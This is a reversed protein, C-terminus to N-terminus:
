KVRMRVVRSGGREGPGQANYVRLEVIDGAKVTSVAQTFETVTRVRTGDVHTIIDGPGDQAAPQLKEAAPGDQDVATVGLGTNEPTDGSVPAVSIGLKQNLPAAAPARGARGTSSTAVPEESPAAILAVKLNVKVGGKRQVTLTVIEGPKRFAVAQQFQAIYEIMKGDIAVVVDGPRVGAAEAPSNEVSFDQVVAGSVADLKAYEADEPQVTGLRLGIIARNVKGNKILEDMVHQALNSPIAFGYGEYTGTQTAIASNIGIVKGDANVLPGGSNGPNIAADTQIFDQIGYNTEGNRLGNLPRGKASVIGATVTFTLDQGMPNGIALVWEGVRTSDSNGFSVVPLNRADIKIVAVDTAPDRGVVTAPYTRGNFLTVRLRDADRVVHSNTMIYGDPSVVFGTGSSTSRQMGDPDTDPMGPMPTNPNQRQWQRFFDQFADSRSNPVPAARRTDARIFVVAPRVTEAVNAFADSWAAMTNATAAPAAVAAPASAAPASPHEVAWAVLAPGLLIGLGAGLQAYRKWLKM